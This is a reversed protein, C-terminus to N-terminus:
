AESDKEIKKTASSETPQKGTFAGKVAGFADKLATGLTPETVSEADFSKMFFEDIDSYFEKGDSFIMKCFLKDLIAGKSFFQSVIKNPIVEEVSINAANGALYSSVLVGHYGNKKLMLLKPEGSNSQYFFSNVVGTKYKKGELKQNFLNEIDPLGPVAAGQKLTFIKYYM